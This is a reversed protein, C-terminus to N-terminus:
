LGLRRRIERSRKRRRRGPSIYVKYILYSVGALAAMLFVIAQHVAGERGQRRITFSNACCPFLRCM